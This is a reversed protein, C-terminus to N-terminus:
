AAPAGLVDVIGEGHMENLLAIVDRECQAREVDYEKLLIDCLESVSRPQEILQWLRSGISDLGYYMGSRISMMVTEGELDSAVLEESRRILTDAGIARQMNM